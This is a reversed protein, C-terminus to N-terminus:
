RAPAPPPRPCSSSARLRDQRSPPLCSPRAPAQHRRRPPASGRGARESRSSRRAARAAERRPQASPTHLTVHVLLEGRGKGVMGRVVHVDEVTGASAVLPGHHLVRLVALPLHSIYTVHTHTHTHTYPHISPHISTHQTRHLVSWVPLVRLVESAPAFFLACRECECCAWRTGRGRAAACRARPTSGRRRKRGRDESSSM